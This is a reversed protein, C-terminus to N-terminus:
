IVDLPKSSDCIREFPVDKEIFGRGFAVAFNNIAANRVQTVKDIFVDSVLEGMICPTITETYLSTGKYEKIEWKFEIQHIAQIIRQGVMDGRHCIIDICM